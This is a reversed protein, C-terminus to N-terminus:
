HRVKPSYEVYKLCGYKKDMVLKKKKAPQDLELTSLSIQSNIYQTYPHRDISGQNTSTAIGISDEQPM